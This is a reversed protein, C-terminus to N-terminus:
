KEENEDEPEFASGSKKKQDIVKKIVWLYLWALIPLFVTAALLSRFVAGSGPFDLLSVVFTAIILAVILIVCVLAAIRKKQNM